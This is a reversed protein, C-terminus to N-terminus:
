IQPQCLGNCGVPQGKADRILPGPSLVDTRGLQRAASAVIASTVYVVGDEAEPLGEIAGFKTVSVKIELLMTEESVPKGLRDWFSAPNYLLPLAPTEITSARAVRGSSPLTLDTGNATRIVLAHPTLNILKTM